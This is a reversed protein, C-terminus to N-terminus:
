NKAEVPKEAEKTEKPSALNIGHQAGVGWPQADKRRGDDTAELWARTQQWTVRKPKWKKQVRDALTETVQGTAPDRKTVFHREIDHLRTEYEAIKAEYAKRSVLPWRLKRAQPLLIAYGFVVVMWFLVFSVVVWAGFNM